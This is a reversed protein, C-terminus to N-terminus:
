FWTVILSVGPGRKLPQASEAPPPNQTDKKTFYALESEPHAQIRVFALMGLAASEFPHWWSLSFPLTTITRRELAHTYLYTNMIGVHVILGGSVRCTGMSLMEAINAQTAITLMM